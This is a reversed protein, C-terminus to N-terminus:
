QGLLLKVARLGDEMKEAYKSPDELHERDWGWNAVVQETEPNIIVYAPQQVSSALRKELEVNFMARKEADPGYKQDCFLKVVVFKKFTERVKSDTFVAKEM